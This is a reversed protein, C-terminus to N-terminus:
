NLKVCLGQNEMYYNFTMFRRCNAFTIRLELIQPFSYRIKVPKDGFDLKTLPRHKIYQNDDVKKVCIIHFFNYKKIHIDVYKKM